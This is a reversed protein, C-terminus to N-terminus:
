RKSPFRHPSSELPLFSDGKSDQCSKQNEPFPPLMSSGSSPALITLLEHSHPPNPAPKAHHLCLEPHDWPLGGASSPYKRFQHLCVRRPLTLYLVFPPPWLNHSPFKLESIPFHKQILLTVYVQLPPMETRPPKWSKALCLQSQHGRQQWSGQM